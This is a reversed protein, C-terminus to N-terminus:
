RLWRETVLPRLRRHRRDEFRRSDGFQLVLAVQVGTATGSVCHDGASVANLVHPVDNVSNPRNHYATGDSFFVSAVKIGAVGAHKVEGFLVFESANYTRKM